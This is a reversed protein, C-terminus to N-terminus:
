AGYVHERALYHIDYRSIGLDSLDRDSLDSLERVTAAYKARLARAAKFDAFAVRIRDAFSIANYSTTAVTAM